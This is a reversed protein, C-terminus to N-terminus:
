TIKIDRFDGDVYTTMYTYGCTKLLEVYDDFKYGLTKTTHSDSTIMPRITGSVEKLLYSSPYVDNRYGRSIGGTNVEFIGGYQNVIHAVEIFADLAISRYPRSEEDFLHCVGNLKTILDFHGVITPRNKRIHAIVLSYFEQALALGDGGYHTDCLTRLQDPYGDIAIYQNDVQIYHVSGITYDLSIGPAEKSFYDVELGSLIPFDPYLERQEEIQNQYSVPDQLGTCSRDFPAYSHASFGIGRHGLNRAAAVMECPSAKGDCHTTHTHTDFIPYSPKM